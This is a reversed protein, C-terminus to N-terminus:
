MERWLVAGGIAFAIALLILSLPWRVASIATEGKALIKLPWFQVLLEPPERRM